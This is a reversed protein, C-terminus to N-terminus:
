KRSSSKKARALVSELRKYVAAASVHRGSRATARARARAKALFAQQERRATAKQEVAALMFASLTEGDDLVDEIARRTEPAVRLPPLTTTKM